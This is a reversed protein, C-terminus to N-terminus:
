YKNKNLIYHTGLAILGIIGVIILIIGIYSKSTSTNTNEISNAIKIHISPSNVNGDEYYVDGEDNCADIKDLKVETNIDKQIKFELTCLKGRKLDEGSIKRLLIKSGDGVVEWNNDVVITQTYELIENNYIKEAVFTNIGSFGKIEDIYVDIFINDNVKYNKKDLQLSLKMSQNETANICNLISFVLIIVIIAIKVIKKM